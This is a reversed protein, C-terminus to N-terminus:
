PFLSTLSLVVVSQLLDFCVEASVEYTMWASLLVLAFNYVILVERLNYAKRTEM